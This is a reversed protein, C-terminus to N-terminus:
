VIPTLWPAHSQIEARTYGREHEPSWTVELLHIDDAEDQLRELVRMANARTTPLDAINVGTLAVISVLGFRPTEAGGAGERYGRSVEDSFRQIRRRASEVSRRFEEAPSEDAEHGPLDLHTWEERPLLRGLAVIRDSPHLDKAAIQQYERRAREHALIPLVLDIRAVDRARQFTRQAPRVLSANRADAQRSLAYGILGFLAVGVVAALM